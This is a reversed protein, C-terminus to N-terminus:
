DAHKKYLGDDEAVCLPLNVPQGLLHALGVEGDAGHVSVHRLFLSVGDHFVEPIVVLPENLEQKYWPKQILHDLIIKQPRKTDGSQSKFMM